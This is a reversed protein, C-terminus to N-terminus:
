EEYPQFVRNLSYFRAYSDLTKQFRKGEKENNFYEEITKGHVPEKLLVISSARKQISAFLNYQGLPRYVQHERQQKNRSDLSISRKDTTSIIETQEKKSHYLKCEVKFM